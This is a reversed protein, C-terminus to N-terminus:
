RLHFFTVNFQIKTCKIASSPVADDGLHSARNDRPASASSSFVPGNVLNGAVPNMLHMFNFIGLSVNDTPLGVPAQAPALPVYGQTTLLFPLLVKQTKPQCQESGHCSSSAQDPCRSCCCHRENKVEGTSGNSSGQGDRVSGQKRSERVKNSRSIKAKNATLSSRVKPRKRLINNLKIKPFKHKSDTESGSDGDENSVIEGPEILGYLDTPDDGGSFQNGVGDNLENHTNHPKDVRQICHVLDPRGRQFYPHYVVSCRGHRTDTNSLM